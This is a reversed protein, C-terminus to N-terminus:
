SPPKTITPNSARKHQPDHYICAAPGTFALQREQLCSCWGKWHPREDKQTRNMSHLSKKQKGAREGREDKGHVVDVGVVVVVARLV